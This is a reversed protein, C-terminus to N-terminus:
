HPHPHLLCSASQLSSGDLLMRNYPDVISTRIFRYHFPSLVELNPVPFPIPLPCQPTRECLITLNFSLLIIM